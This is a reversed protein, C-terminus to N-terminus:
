SRISAKFLATSDDQHAVDLSLTLLSFVLSSPARRVRVLRTSGRALTSLLMAIFAEGVESIIVLFILFFVSGVLALAQIADGLLLVVLAKCFLSPTTGKAIAILWVADASKMYIVTVVSLSDTPQKTM